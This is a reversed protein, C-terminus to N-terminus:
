VLLGKYFPLSKINVNITTCTVGRYMRYSTYSLCWFPLCCFWFACCGRCLLRDHGCCIMRPTDNYISVHWRDGVGCNNFNWFHGTSDYLTQELWSKVVDYVSIEISFKKRQEMCEMAKDFSEVFAQQVEAHRPNVTVIYCERPLIYRTNGSRRHGKFYIEMMFPRSLFEEKLIQLEELNNVKVDCSKSNEVFPTEGYTRVDCCMARCSYDEERIRDQAFFHIRKPDHIITPLGNATNSFRFQSSLGSNIDAVFDGGRQVSIAIQSTERDPAALSNLVQDISIM